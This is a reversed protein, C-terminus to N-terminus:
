GRGEYEVYRGDGSVFVMEPGIILAENEPTEFIVHYGEIWEDTPKDHEMKKISIVHRHDGHAEVFAVAIREAM